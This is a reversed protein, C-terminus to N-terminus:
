LTLPAMLLACTPIAFLGATALVKRMKACGPRDTLWILPAPQPTRAGILSSFPLMCCAVRLVCLSKEV